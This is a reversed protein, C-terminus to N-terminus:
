DETPKPQKDKRLTLSVVGKAIGYMIIAALGFGLLYVILYVPYPLLPYLTSLVPLDNNYYPSIYFMNFVVDIGKEAFYKPMLVNLVMAASSFGAFTILGSGFFPFNLRDRNYAAMWVGLVVQFGHVIMTQVNIFTYTNFVSTPLVMVIFGAFLSFTAIYSMIARRLKCDKLLFIFPLTYYPTSCFQFPFSYWNYQWTMLDGEVHMAFLLQKGVEFFTMIFWAVFVIIRMKKDSANRLFFCAGVTLAITLLISIIHFSGYLAPKEMTESLCRYLFSEFTTM